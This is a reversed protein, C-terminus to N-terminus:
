NPWHHWKQWAICNIDVVESEGSELNVEFSVPVEYTVGGTFQELSLPEDPGNDRYRKCRITADCVYVVFLSRIGGRTESDEIWGEPNKSLFALRPELLPDANFPGSPIEGWGELDEKLAARIERYHRAFLRKARM